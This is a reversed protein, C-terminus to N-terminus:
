PENRTKGLPLSNTTGASASEELMEADIHNELDELTVLADIMQWNLPLRLCTRYTHRLEIGIRKATEDM